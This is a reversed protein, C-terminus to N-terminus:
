NFIQFNRKLWLGTPRSASSRREKKKRGWESRFCMMSIKKPVIGRILIFLGKELVPSSTCIGKGRVPFLLCTDKEKKRQGKVLRRQHVIVTKSGYTVKKKKRKEQERMLDNKRERRRLSEAKL